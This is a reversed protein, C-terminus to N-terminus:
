PMREGNVYNKIGAINERQGSSFFQVQQIMQQLKQLNGPDFDGITKFVVSVDPPHCDLEVAALRLDLWGTEVTLVYRRDGDDDVGDFSIDAQVRYGDATVLFAQTPFPKGSDDIPKSPPPPTHDDFNFSGLDFSTM